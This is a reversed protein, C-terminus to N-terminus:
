RSSSRARSAADVEQAAAPVPPGLGVWRTVRLRSAAEFVVLPGAVGVVVLLPLIVAASSLGLVKTLAIRMGAVFIVHLLFIALSRRGLYRLIAADGSRALLIVAGTGLLAVPALLWNDYGLGAAQSWLALGTVVVVLLLGVWPEWRRGQRTMWDQYTGALCGLAFFLFYHGGMWLTYPLDPALATAALLLVGLVPLVFARSWRLVVVALVSYCALVYLFWFQSPPRWLVSVFPAVGSDFTQNVYRGAIVIIATQLLAWVLYPWVVNAPLGGLLGMGQRAFRPSIFLGALFLFAPMHFSYIVHFAAGAPGTPTLLGASMLGDVGHGFVVLLICAGRAQDIWGLRPAPNM